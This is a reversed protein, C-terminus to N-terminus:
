IDTELPLLLEVTTGNDVFTIKVGANVKKQRNLIDIRSKTINLGFSKNVQNAPTNVQLAAKGIGDDKVVCKLMNGQTAITVGISGSGQKKDIGHWISNEVFPQLLLPPIFTNHKDISEDVTISYAFKHNMRLQELQLYLELAQLDEDITVEKKESNELIMRMLKAFKATYETATGDNNKLFYDGISNISNFIFHPNMQARLAKMETDAVQMNFEAEKQKEM